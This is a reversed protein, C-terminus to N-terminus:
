SPHRGLLHEAMALDEATDIDISSRLDMVFPVIMDGYIEGADILARRVIYITGTEIWAPPLASRDTAMAARDFFPEIRGDMSRWTWFPHDSASRVATVTDAGSSAFLAIAEDIHAATRFPSTPQLLAVADFQKADPDLVRLMHRLADIAPSKDAALEAPRMAPVELGLTRACAAIEEDDTSLVVRALNKAGQAAAASWALLPKGALPLINKRPLRKSGGRAPIIGLVTPRKNPM